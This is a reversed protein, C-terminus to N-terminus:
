RHWALASQSITELAQKPIRPAGSRAWVKRIYEVGLDSMYQIEKGKEMVTVFTSERGVDQASAAMFRAELACYLSTNIDSFQSLYNKDAHFSLASLAASAGTGIAFVGTPDYRRPPTVGDILLIRGQGDPDFGCALIQLSLKIQEMRNRLNNYVEDTFFKRKSLFERTSVKHRRLVRYEVLEDLKAWWMAQLANGVEKAGIKRGKKMLAYLRDSTGELISPVYEVDSGAYLAVWDRFFPWNKLALKDSSFDKFSARADTVCVIKKRSESLVAICVSVNWVKWDAIRPEPLGSLLLRLM